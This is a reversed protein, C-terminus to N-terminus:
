LPDVLTIVSCIGPPPLSNAVQMQPTLLNWTSLYGLHPGQPLLLRPGLFSFYSIHRSCPSSSPVIPFLPCLPIPSASSSFSHDEFM